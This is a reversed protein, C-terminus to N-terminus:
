KTTRLYWWIKRQSELSSATLSYCLSIIIKSSSILFSTGNYCLPAGFSLCATNQYHPLSFPHCFLSVFSLFNFCLFPWMASPSHFLWNLWMCGYTPQAKSKAQTVQKCPIYPFVKKNKPSLRQVYTEQTQAPVIFRQKRSFQRLTRCRLKLNRCCWTELFSNPLGKYFPISNRHIEYVFLM